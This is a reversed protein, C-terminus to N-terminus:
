ESRLPLNHLFFNLIQDEYQKREPGSVVDAQTHPLVVLRKPYPAAQYIQRTARELTPEGDSALFLKPKGGLRSLGSQLAPHATGMTFIHFEARSIMGFLWGTGGVLKDLQVEFLEAPRNYVNDVALADVVSDRETVAVAAYAGLSNGYIGLHRPNIDQLKRVTSIAASLVSAEQAGLNSVSSGGRSSEFNFLYVNYHNAQLVTGLSLLASRNSDYGHCLLIVPAGRLGILLWGQHEAGEADKFNVNEYSSLLYSAPTVNELSDHATTIRYTLFAGAGFLVGVIAAFVILTGVVFSRGLRALKRGRSVVPKSPKSEMNM